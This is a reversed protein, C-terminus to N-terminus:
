VELVYVALAHGEEVVEGEYVLGVKELVHRSAENDRMAKAVVRKGRLHERAFDCSARAAETAYGHGWHEEFFRYGLDYEGDDPMHKIGCWGLFDGRSKEICGWRGLGIAYQPFVRTRLVVLADEANALPPEGFIYRTVNPNRNLAFLREADAETMRRLLMRPTELITTM